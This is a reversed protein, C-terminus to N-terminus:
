RRRSTGPRVPTRRDPQRHEIRIHMIYRDPLRQYRLRNQDRHRRQHHPLEPPPRVQGHPPKPKQARQHRDDAQHLDPGLRHGVPVRIQRQDAHKHRRSAPQRDPPAHGPPPHRNPRRRAHRQRGERPRHRKGPRASSPCRPGTGAPGPPSPSCNGPGCCGRRPGARRPRACCLRHLVELFHELDPGVVGVGVIVHPHLEIVEALGVLGDLM